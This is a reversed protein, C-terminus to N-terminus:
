AIRTLLSPNHHKPEIERPRLYMHLFEPVSDKFRANIEINGWNAQPNTIEFKAIIIGERISPKRLLFRVREESLEKTSILFAFTANFIDAYLRTKGVMKLTIPEDKVEVIIIEKASAPEKQVYGVLDPYIGEDRVINLTDDGLVKKLTGSFRNKGGVVELLLKKPLNEYLDNQLPFKEHDIYRNSFVATLHEKIPEYYREENRKKIKSTTGNSSM